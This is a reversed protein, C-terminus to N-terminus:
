GHHHGNGAYAGVEPEFPALDHHIELGMGRIMEDFIPDELYRIRGPSIELSTHRNGLHYCARAMLLADDSAITSLPERAALVQVVYGDETTLLDQSRMITGRELFIGAEKGNDLVVRLRSRTRQEWPLTLTTAPAQPANQTRTLRIM